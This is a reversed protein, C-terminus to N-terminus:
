NCKLISRIKVKRIGSEEIKEAAAETIEENQAVILEGGPVYIDNFATRGIIRAKLPEIM